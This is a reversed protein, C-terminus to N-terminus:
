DDQVILSEQLVNYSAAEPASNKLELQHNQDPELKHMNFLKIIMNWSYNVNKFANSHLLEKLHLLTICLLQFMVLSVSVNVATTNSTTYLSAVFIM